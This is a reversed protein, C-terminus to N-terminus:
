AVDKITFRVLATGDQGILGRNHWAVEDWEMPGLGFGNPCGKRGAVVMIVRSTHGVWRGIERRVQASVASGAEAVAAPPSLVLWASIQMGKKGKKAYRIIRWKVGQFVTGDTSLVSSSQPVSGAAARECLQRLQALPVRLELAAETVRSTPRQLLRWAAHRALPLHSYQLLDSMAKAKDAAPLGAFALAYHM